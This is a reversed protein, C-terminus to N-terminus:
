NRIRSGRVVIEPGSGAPQNGLDVVVIQGVPVNVDQGPAGPVEIHYNSPRLGVMTYSGQANVTSTVHQGTNTDTATVTAGAAVGIVHGQITSTAQAYAPEAVTLAVAMALTSIGLALASRRNEFTMSVERVARKRYRASGGLSPVRLALRPSRPAFYRRLRNCCGTENSGCSRPRQPAANPQLSMSWRVLAHATTRM